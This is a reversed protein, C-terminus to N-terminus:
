KKAKKAPKKPAATSNDVAEQKTTSDPQKEPEVADVFAQLETDYMGQMTNVKAVHLETDYMGQMTNVKAM